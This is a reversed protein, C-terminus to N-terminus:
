HNTSNIQAECNTIIFSAQCNESCFYVGTFAGFIEKGEKDKVPM